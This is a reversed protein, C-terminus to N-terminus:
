QVAVTVTQSNVGNIQIVVPINGSPTGAPILVNVQIIGSVLTPAPGYYQVTATQGNVTATVPLALSGTTTDPNLAGDTSPPVTIGGGTGFLMMYTNPAAPNSFSNVSFDQNLAAAQGTGMSNAAFLGPEAALVPLTVGASTGGGYSVTLVTNAKGAVEFPVLANVQDASAYLVPVATGDFLVQTGGLTTAVTGGTAPNTFGVGIAPGLNTGFISVAMGPSVKGVAGSAANIVGLVAPVATVPGVQLTVIIMQPVASGSQTINITGSYTGNALGTPNVSVSLTAPTTGSTPTVSLWVSGAAATFNLAGTNSTVTLTQAPPAPGGTPASFTLTSPTVTLAPPGTVTLTVTVPATNGAGGATVNITGTYTGAGLGAPNVSVLVTAPTTGTTPNLTVWTGPSTATFALAANGAATVMFTQAAPTTGGIQYTFTLAPPTVTLQQQAVIQVTVPVELVNPAGVGKILVAGYYTGSTTLGPGLTVQLTAPASTASTVTLWPVSTTVSTLAVTGGGTVTLSLAQSPPLPTGPQYTFSLMTPSTALNSGSVTLQAPITLTAAGSKVTIPSPYIGPLLGAPNATLTLTAPTVGSTPSVTLWNYAGPAVSVTIPQASGDSAVIKVTSISPASTSALTFLYNSPQGIQLTVSSIAITLTKPPSTTNTSDNVTVTFTFPSGTATTPSGSIAGSSATLTLGPPLAGSTVTWNSYPPTGGTAALTQNYAIGIGGAPLTTTTITLPTGITISLAQAPSTNGASDKVTVSFSSTGGTTPTGSIVGSSAALSLGAPLTGSSVTWSSYPPTGGTAALTASYATGVSGSPVTTTTITVGAVITISLAQPSSTTGTSDKVTVSFSSTGATTPTGSIVGTSAALSLGAPLTGTTVTWSSYPPTGGSAALSQSYALGVTGNPLPGTIVIGVSITISLPQAPSTNGASDKVTVSFSSTGSTTPTGSIVGTSAALSLGAPLTGSSVTWNSYPATGGTAGLTQSYATGVAGNPLSTTTITVGAIITLSLPQPASTNGASDKVTVNFSSTGATTPTGSLVGTAAALSLGAPLTGSSVTWSSYPPTGGSAALTNSYAAGVTGNPLTVTTITVGAVVTISLPQAPSTNGASDKVTVSFSSAGTASPTGSITGSSASLSLGTPLTGSSVTWSSYPPTGGSAALTQAYAVGVTANSLSTTTITVSNVITISLPQAPSTAHTSDQVTVSFSFTGINAAPTGSIVGSSSNLSLGSPLAGSNVTWSSYPPTGGAASLTQNYGVGVTGNPLSTTTITLGSAVIISLPQAPSTNGASDKVTVSFSSTGGTSPTGSIVGTSAALSLGAPLTGSSVTWSSYPPTGGTAALTASYGVGVEGNPLSTTSVTVPAVITISLPQAPSTNGASDKVTVNFSSAGAASPTGSIVGSSAALSLGAPLTGTSVTWNSYPPAGGSAMLTQSYSVGVTGNPLTTTVVTPLTVVTISLPQAPSTNGASDKVTVSFSAAGAASPTGSIIGSSAALSLGAPLAGSSVTWSSYPPTGGTAMLTQSYGVGVTGNPLSTTVVTPLSVITISLPQAPSTNGASDKVTVSFSATGAASPTGSIVGTSAALSLGAPLAGSSVTWSSYPPTGGTAMLTQSYGVGVTGNPLSTTVITVGSVVTISLPKAPSTNGASDKVTVSFSATGAASPTGSIVGTSAALSLGAPLAGSSVTWSSYPPVGGSAALTQSYGAGVTGNPLSSTTVTLPNIITISLPQAPSTNGLSDKVTVSFSATAATTPTGSIVGTSAALSLGAPLAGSSVTWSSYPPTGGSAVLTQSYNVGVTGNPLSTTVITVGTGVTISLPKAPSVDGLSDKVTVSFSATGNASPTGSIVGTSAALSLGAPLAGSSVTWSSYPPVGGSAALTQSYGVGVTGNPLSSTTVVLPTIITISLAKPASTSGASDKVTVDFSATGAATPTGSIVGTSAALSLGAPLAGSSVTWSSYPPTGGSAALTQSYAVGVTGNPLSNTTIVPPAASVNLTVNVTETTLNPATCSTTPCTADFVLIKGTYSGAGLTALVSPSIGVSFPTPTDAGGTTGTTNITLWNSGSTVSTTVAYPLVAGGSVSPTVSQTPPASGGVMAGFTLTTPSVSGSPCNTCTSTIGGSIGLTTSAGSLVYTGESATIPSTLIGAQFGLPIPAPISNPPFAVEAVFTAGLILSCGSLTFTDDGNDAPDNTVISGTAGPSACPLSLLATGCAGAYLTVPLDTFVTSTATGNFPVNDPDIDATAVFCEGNLGIPDFTTTVAVSTGTCTATGGTIVTATTPTTTYNSGPSVIKLATGTAITNTGTLAVTATGGTGGGNTFSIECTQTASGTATIGSVYTGGAVSADIIPGLKGNICIDVGAPPTPIDSCSTVAPISTDRSAPDEGALLQRIREVSAGPAVQAMLGAALSLGVSLGVMSKTIFSSIRHM